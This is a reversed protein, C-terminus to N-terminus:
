TVPPIVWKFGEEPTVTAIHIHGGVGECKQRDISLAEPDCHARILARCVRVAQSVTTPRLSQCIHRHPHLRNDPTKGFLVAWVMPSGHGIARGPLLEGAALRAEMRDELYSITITRRMPQGLIYGDLYLHTEMEMGSALPDLVLSQIDRCITAGLLRAYDDPNRIETTAINIASRSVVASFDLRGSQLLMDGVGAVSFCMEGATHSLRFVKQAEDGGIEGTQNNLKRGDAAVVFGRPTYVRAIATMPDDLCIFNFSFCEEGADSFWEISV